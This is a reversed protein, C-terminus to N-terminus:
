DAVVVKGNNLVVVDRELARARFSIVPGDRWIETRITESPYVPASFRLALSKFRSPDYDCCTKLVAHGAVGLSCLGHLIPAKFGAQTAVAPDAHLPNPDGSLRYILAAQPLVPLDCHLDPERAPLSHVPRIPGKPGGFGGNGRAFTTSYLTAIKCGSAKDMLTRQQYLLAGKDAGKDIIETIKTEAVMTAAAPVPAHLEIEQEGHLVQQWSIGSNPDRAWFGPGALVVAMTPLAAFGEAEEFVYRLQNTDLPDAGLGLGLAYLISDKATYTQEVQGFPWNMLKDYDIAM